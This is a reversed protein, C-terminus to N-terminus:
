GLPAPPNFVISQRENRGFYAFVAGFVLTAPGFIVALFIPNLGSPSKSRTTSDKDTQPTTFGTAQNRSTKTATLQNSLTTSKDVPIQKELVLVKVPEGSVPPFSSFTSTCSSSSIICDYARTPCTFFSSGSGCCTNLPSPMTGSGCKVNVQASAHQPLAAILLTFVIYLAPTITRAPNVLM